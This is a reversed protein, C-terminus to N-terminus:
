KLDVIDAVHMNMDNTKLNTTPSFFNKIIRFRKEKKSIQITNPLWYKMLSFTQIFLSTIEIVADDKLLYRNLLIDVRDEGFDGSDYVVFRDKYNTKKLLMYRSDNQPNISKGNVINFEVAKEACESFNNINKLVAELKAVNNAIRILSIVDVHSSYRLIFNDEYASKFLAHIENMDKFIQFGLYSQNKISTSVESYSHNVTGLINGLTNSDLNYGHIIKKFFYLVVLIDNAVKNKIYDNLYKKEHNIIFQRVIDYFLFAVFFFAANSFINVLINKLEENSTIRSAFFLVVSAFGLSVHPLIRYFRHKM